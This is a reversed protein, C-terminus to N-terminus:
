SPLANTKRDTRLHGSAAGSGAMSPNSNNRSLLWQMKVDQAIICCHNLVHHFTMGVPNPWLGLLTIKKEGVSSYPRDRVTNITNQRPCQIFSTGRVLRQLLRFCSIEIDQVVPQLISLDILNFLSLPFVPGIHGLSINLLVTNRHYDSLKKWVSCEVQSYFLLHERWSTSPASCCASRLSPSQQLKKLGWQWGSFHRDWNTGEKWPM